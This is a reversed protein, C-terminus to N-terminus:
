LDSHNISYGIVFDDLVLECYKLYKRMRDVSISHILHARTDVPLILRKGREVAEGRQGSLQKDNRDRSFTDDFKGHM